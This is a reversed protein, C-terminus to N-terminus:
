MAVTCDRYKDGLPDPALKAYLEDVYLSVKGPQYEYPNLAIDVSEIDAYDLEGVTAENLPVKKGNATIMFIKPPRIDFRINATVYSTPEDGEERPRLVRVNWGRDMMDQALKPDLVISVSRKGGDPHYRDPRGSFNSFPIRTNEIVISNRNM